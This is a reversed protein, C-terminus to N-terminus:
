YSEVDPITFYVNTGKGPESEAWIRGKHTKVFEKCINLGLGTGKEGDTGKEVSVAVNEFLKAAYDSEMGIGNDAILFKFVGDDKIWGVRINGKRNTFKIANIILNHMIRDFMDPDAVIEQKNEKDFDAVLEIEKEDANAQTHKIIKILAKAINYKSPKFSIKGTQAMSWELLKNIMEVLQVSAKHISKYFMNRKEKDPEDELLLVSYGQIINFPNKLDHGIISFLKDKTDNALKLEESQAEILINKEKLVTNRRKRTKSITYLFFSLIILFVVTIVAIITISWANRISSKRKLDELDEQLDRIKDREEQLYIFEQNVANELISSINISDEIAKNRKNFVLANRYDGSKEYVEALTKLLSIEGEISNIAKADILTQLLLNISKTFQRLESYLEAQIININILDDPSNIIKQYEYANDLNTQASIYDKKNIDLGALSISIYTLMYNNNTWKAYKYSESLYKEAEIINNDETAMFGLANLAYIMSTSDNFERSINLSQIFNDAALEKAELIFYCNGINYRFISRLDNYEYKDAIRLGKFYTEIAKQFQGTNQYNNALINYNDTLIGFSNGLELIYSASDCYVIASDFQSELYYSNGIDALVKGAFAYEKHKIFTDFLPTLTHRSEKYKNQAFFLDAKLNESSATFLENKENDAIIEALKIYQMCSDENSLNLKALFLYANVLSEKCKEVEPEFIIQKVHINSSDPLDIAKLYQAYYLELKTTICHNNEDIIIERAENIVALMDSYQNSLYQFDILEFLLEIKKESVKKEDEILRRISDAPEQSSGEIYILFSFFVLVIRGFDIIRM